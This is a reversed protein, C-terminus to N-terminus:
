FYCLHSFRVYVVQYPPFLAPGCLSYHNNCQSRFCLRPSGELRQHISENKCLLSFVFARSRELVVLFVESAEEPIGFLFVPGVIDSEQIFPMDSFEQSVYCGSCVPPSEAAVTGFSRLVLCRVRSNVVQALLSRRDRNRVHCWPM